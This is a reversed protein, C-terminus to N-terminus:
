AMFDELTPKRKLPKGTVLADLDDEGLGLGAALQRVFEWARETSIRESYLRFHEPALAIAEPLLKHGKAVNEYGELIRLNVPHHIGGHNVPLIHDIHYQKGTEKSMTARTNELFAIREKENATLPVTCNKKKARRQRTVILVKHKNKRSWNRARSRIIERDRNRRDAEKLRLRERNKERYKRNRERSLLRANPTANYSRIKEKNNERYAKHAARKKELDKNPMGLGRM